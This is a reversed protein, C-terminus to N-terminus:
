PTTSPGQLLLKAFEPTEEFAEACTRALPLGLYYDPTLFLPLDPVPEGPAFHEVYTVPPSDARYSAFVLPKGEPLEEAEGVLEEEILGPIGRPARRTPPLLDIVAVHIGARIAAVAETDKNSPSVIELRAMVRHGRNHRISLAKGGWTEIGLSDREVRQDAAVYLGPPLMRRIAVKLFIIWTQHFDHFLGDDVRTWDHANM